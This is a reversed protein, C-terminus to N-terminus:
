LKGEFFDKVKSFFGTSEPSGKAHGAADGEFEELLERQRKTLHRPTEVVVQIYMDGRASSRLVSFGKGRLRFHEGTQTGAPIKVKTRSGDVVPVEIETGLAAQAMRVPVRCYINAGDRQFIAHQEVSVHVYLDGAPVGKGGSEGEGSIRIRTGDEVGAPITVEITRNKEVTGTGHCEKCPNRILRGSGHCTPCPREVFFFGQQARVKGAGHCSPCTEPQADKDASGTGDCSECTVRTPVTIKKKVGAFAEAFTITVQVQLDAGSRRGGRRGGMMDGFMQEFIDGLGGGGFDFGGAGPGGGEFAAHGFRDYAARKQDDKLVDYAENIEKFRNEAEADGPNRDPHYKMALKRYARKIEDGNADRSVELVAYYDIKTAM